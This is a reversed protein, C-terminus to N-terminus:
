ERTHCTKGITFGAIVSAGLSKMKLRYKRMSDGRTMVDDFLLVNKRKFFDYDFTITDLDGAAGGVHRAVRAVNVSIHSYANIMGTRRCILDSFYEYRAKNKEPTSAPICVLTLNSLLSGFTSKLKEDIRPVLEDLADRYPIRPNKDPDNKFSWILQRDHWEKETADFECTTPYYRILYTHHLESMPVCDWSSVSAQLRKTIRVEKMLAKDEDSASGLTLVYKADVNRFIEARRGLKMRNAGDFVLLDCKLDNINTASSLLSLRKEKNPIGMESLAYDWQKLHEETDSVIICSSDPYKELFLRVVGTRNSGTSYPCVLFIDKLLLDLAEEDKKTQNDMTLSVEEVTWDKFVSICTIPCPLYPYSGWIKKCLDIITNNDAKFSVVIIEYGSKAFDQIDKLDYIVPLPLSSCKEELYDSLEKKIDTGGYDDLDAYYVISNGLSSINLILNFIDECIRNPLHQENGFRTEFGGQILHIMFMYNRSLIKYYLPYSNPFHIDEDHNDSFSHTYEFHKECFSSAFHHWIRFPYLKKNGDEDIGEIDLNCISCGFGKPNNDRSKQSFEKQKNYWNQFNTYEKEIKYQRVALARVRQEEEKVRKDISDLSNYIEDLEKFTLGSLCSYQRGIKEYGEPYFKRWTDVYFKIVSIRKRRKAIRAIIVVALVIVLIVLWDGM